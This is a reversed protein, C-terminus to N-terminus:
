LFSFLFECKRCPPLIVINFKTRSSAFPSSSFNVKFELERCAGLCSIFNILPFFCFFKEVSIDYIMPFFFLFVKAAGFGSFRTLHARAKSSTKRRSLRTLRFQLHNCHETCAAHVGAKFGLMLWFIFLDYNKWWKFERALVLPFQYEAPATLINLSKWEQSKGAFLPQESVIVNRWVVHVIQWSIFLIDISKAQENKRSCSVKLNTGGLWV